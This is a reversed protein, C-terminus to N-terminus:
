AALEAQEFVDRLPWRGPCQQADWRDAMGRPTNQPRCHNQAIDTSDVSAFPWRLGSCQMGRLMHMPPLRGFTRALDNWTEDMRCVWAEVVRRCVGGYLWHLRAVVRERGSPLAPRDTREHALGSGGPTQRAAMRQFSWGAGPQARRDRGAPDGLDDSLGALRRVLCLLGALRDVQRVEVELLRWQRADRVPRYRPLAARRRAAQSIRWFCRGRLEYLASVPSIPTGHYHLTM